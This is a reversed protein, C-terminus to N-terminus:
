VTSQRGQNLNKRSEEIGGPFTYSIDRDNVASEKWIGELGEIM